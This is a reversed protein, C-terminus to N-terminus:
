PAGPEPGAIEADFWNLAYHELLSGTFTVKDIDSTFKKLWMFREVQKLWPM